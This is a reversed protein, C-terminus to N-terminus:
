IIEKKTIEKYQGVPVNQLTLKNVKVRRLMVIKLGLAGLMRRVQRKWGQHLVVSITVTQRERDVKLLSISDFKAVGEELHIGRKLENICFLANSETVNRNLYSIRFEVEYTKEHKFKPHTLQYSLDGDNTLIILGETDKDLRGVPFVRHDKPVLDTIKHQAFRDHISCIYGVPKNVLYYVYKQSNNLVQNEYVVKDRATDVKKGLEITIEGNVQIKGDTILKDAARRSCVGADAIYKNLRILM